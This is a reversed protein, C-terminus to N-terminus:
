GSCNRALVKQAKFSITCQELSKSLDREIQREKRRKIQVQLLALKLNRLDTLHHELRSRLMVLSLGYTFTLYKLHNVFINVWACWCVRISTCVSACVGLVHERARACVCVCACVCACVGWVCVCVYVRVCARARVRACVLRLEQM